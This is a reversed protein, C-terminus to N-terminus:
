QSRLVLHPVNYIFALSLPFTILHIPWASSASPASSTHVPFQLHTNPSHSNHTCPTHTTNTVRRHTPSPCHSFLIVLTPNNPLLAKGQAEKAPAVVILPKGFTSTPVGVNAVLPEQDRQDFTYVLLDAADVHALHNKWKGLVAECLDDIDTLCVKIKSVKGINNGSTDVVQVWVLVVCVVCCLVCLPFSSHAPLSSCCLLLLGPGAEVSSSEYKTHSMQDDQCVFVSVSPLSTYFDPQKM